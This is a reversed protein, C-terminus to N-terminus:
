EGACKAIAADSELELCHRLDLDKPRESRSTASKGPAPKSITPKGAAQGAQATNTATKISENPKMPPQLSKAPAAVPASAPSSAAHAVAAPASAAIPASAPLHAAPAATHPKVVPKVVAPAAKLGLLNLNLPDFYVFVGIAIIAVIGVLIGTKQKPTVNM